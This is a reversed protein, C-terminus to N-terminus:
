FNNNELNIVSEVVTGLKAAIVELLVSDDAEWNVLEEATLMLSSNSVQQMSTVIGEENLVANGFQIEFNTQSAGAAYPRALATLYEAEITVPASFPGSQQVFSAKPNIKAYLM